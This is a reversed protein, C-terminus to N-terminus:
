GLPIVNYKKLLHKLDSMEMQYMMFQDRMMQNQQKAYELESELRQIRTIQYDLDEQTAVRTHAAQSPVAHTHGASSAVSLLSGQNALPDGFYPEGFNPDAYNAM